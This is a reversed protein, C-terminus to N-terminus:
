SSLLRNIAEVITKCKDLHVYADLDLGGISEIYARVDSSKSCCVQLLNLVHLVRKNALKGSQILEIIACSLGLSSSESIQRTSVLFLFQVVRFEFLIGVSAYVNDYVCLLNFFFSICLERIQQKPDTDYLLYECLSSFISDQHSM